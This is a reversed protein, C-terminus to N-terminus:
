PRTRRWVTVDLDITVEAVQSAAIRAAVEAAQRHHGAPGMMVLDCASEPSVPVRSTVVQHAVPESFCRRMQARLDPLKDSQMSLLGHGALEHLHRPRPTVVLAAAGPSLVRAYEEVNRPAFIDLLLDVTGDALPLPRWLDWALALTRPDRAARRLGAPSLDLAVGRASSRQDLLSRLHYGTGSGCDLLLDASGAGPALWRDALRVLVETLESFLGADQVRERAMIMAASDPTAASGRGVLLNVYGQRAADFRHGSPCALGKVSGDARRRLIALAPAASTAAVRPAQAEAHLPCLLPWSDDRMWAAAADAPEPPSQSM